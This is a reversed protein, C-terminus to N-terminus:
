ACIVLSMSLKFTNILLYTGFKDHITLICYFDKLLVLRSGQNLLLAEAKWRATAPKFGAWVHCINVLIFGDKIINGPPFLASFLPRLTFKLKGWFMKQQNILLIWTDTALISKESCKRTIITLQILVGCMQM